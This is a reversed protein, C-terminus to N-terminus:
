QFLNGADVGPGPGVDSADTLLGFSVEGTYAAYQVKEAERQNVAITLLTRPLEETTQQGEADTTTTQTPTTSGVGLVTVRPLLLRSYDETTQFIAVQSGPNVFGAVRSPDTLNVSIAVMDKPIGLASPADEVEGGFKDSIIQEGAFIRTTAVQGALGETSTQYNPMLDDQAVPALQLKGAKQADDITEGADIPAVATLVDVTEFRDEARNDAGQV